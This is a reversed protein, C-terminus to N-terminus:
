SGQLGPEPPQDPLGKEAVADSSGLGRWSRSCGDALGGVVGIRRVGVKHKLLVILQSRLILGRLGM